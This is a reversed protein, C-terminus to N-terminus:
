TPHWGEKRGGVGKGNKGPTALTLDGSGRCQTLLCESASVSFSNSRAPDPELRELIVRVHKKKKRAPSM